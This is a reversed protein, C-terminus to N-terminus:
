RGCIRTCVDEGRFAQAANRLSTIVAEGGKKAFSIAAEMKPLMSGVGFQGEDCYRQAEDVTVHSLQREDPKGFNICVKDVATLMVLYDASVLEALKESAFDKDIVAPVGILKGDKKIVPIGGGGAAIVINGGKLLEKIAKKEVVDIPRPSPVVRRFGRGSDEMMTFNKERELERAKELSYFSGVPKTPNLFAPDNEDVVVQTIVTTATRNLEKRELENTLANQLHYGIYGQSMAGCEPFPMYSSIVGQEAATSLGLNIMGVQPGNGHCVILENGDEVLEVIIHAIENILEIQEKPSNGLANGGLAMVIRAM